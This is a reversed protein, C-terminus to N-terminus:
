FYDAMTSFSRHILSHENYLHRGDVADSFDIIADTITTFIEWKEVLIM